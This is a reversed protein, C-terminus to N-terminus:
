RRRRFEFRTAIYYLISVILAIVILVPIVIKWPLVWFVVTQENTDNGYGPYLSLHATYRGLMFGPKWFVERYRTSEPLSFYADVPIGAISKRLTNKITIIGHPVLHVNGTNRFLIEFGEPAKDYFRKQPGLVRFDELYGEENADGNARVLFLVGVRSIIRTRGETQTSTADPDIVSPRNSIIVAGYYGRPEANEPLSVEIPITIREGFNLSFSTIEPKIFDRISYPGREDGLLVVPQDPNNSGIFDEVQIEFNMTETIRNTITVHRITTDGPNLFLEVKGPELVFDGVPEVPITTKTFAYATYIGSLASVAILVAIASTLLTKKSM